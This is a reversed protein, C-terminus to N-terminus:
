ASNTRYEYQLTGNLYSFQAISDHLSDGPLNIFRLSKCHRDAASRVTDLKPACHYSKQCASVACFQM